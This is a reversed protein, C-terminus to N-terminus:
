EARARSVQGFHMVVEHPSANTNQVIRAIDTDRDFLAISEDPYEAVDTTAVITYQMGINSITGCSLEAGVLSRPLGDGYGIRLTLLQGTPPAARRGYGIHLATNSPQNSLCKVNVHVANKVGPVEAAYAGFLGVGIRVRDYESNGQIGPGTSELDIAAIPIGANQFIQIFQAFAQREEAQAAPLTLHSWLEIELWPNRAIELLAPLVDLEVGFWGLAPSLGLRARLPTKAAEAAQALLKLAEPTVVNVHGGRQAISAIHQLPPQAFVIIPRESIARVQEFEDSDAVCFGDVHTDLITVIETLGWGYGASKVVAWVPKGCHQRWAQVNEALISADLQIQPQQM